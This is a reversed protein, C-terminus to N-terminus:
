RSRPHARISARAASERRNGGKLRALEDEIAQSRSIRALERDIRDSGPELLDVFVGEAVLGEIADARSQIERIRTEARQITSGVDALDASIGTIAEQVQLQAWPFEYVAKLEEKKAQFLAIKHDLVAQSQKLSELHRDLAAIHTRWSSRARSRRRSGISRPGPWTTEGATQSLTGTGPDESHDSGARCGPEGAPERAASVEVLSRSIEMRSEELRQLSFDLSAKPDELHDAAQSVRARM